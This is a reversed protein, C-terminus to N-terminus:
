CFEPCMLHRSPCDSVRGRRRARKVVVPGAVEGRWTATVLRRSIVVSRDGNTSIVARGGPKLMRRIEGVALRPDPVHYMMHSALVIDFRHDAFPLQQADAPASTILTALGSLSAVREAAERVMGHSIDTLVIAIGDAIAQRGEAWFWGPGCGVDLVSMGSQIEGLSALWPFWEVSATRYNAHLKARASLKRSDSYQINKLYSQDGGSFASRRKAM